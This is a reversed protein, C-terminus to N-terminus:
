AVVSERESLIITIIATTIIIVECLLLLLLLPPLPFPSPSSSFSGFLINPELPIRPSGTHLYATLSHDLAPFASATLDYSINTLTL